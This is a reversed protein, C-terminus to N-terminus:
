RWSMTESSGFEVQWLHVPLVGAAPGRLQGHRAVIADRVLPDLLQDLRDCHRAELPQM